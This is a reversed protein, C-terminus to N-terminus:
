TSKTMIHKNEQLYSLNVNLPGMLSSVGIESYNIDNYNQDLSFDYNFKTYENIDLKMSGVLDSLKENLSTIDAMKKNEKENIVQALSFDFNKNMKKIKYDFGVTSSIGTEYNNNNNIRNLDFASDLDLKSGSSLQRM